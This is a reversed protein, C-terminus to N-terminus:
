SGKKMAVVILVVVIVLGIGGIAIWLGTNDPKPPSPLPPAPQNRNNLVGLVKSGMTLATIPDFDSYQDGHLAKTHANM